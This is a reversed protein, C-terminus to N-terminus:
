GDPRSATGADHNDADPPCAIQNHLFGALTILDAFGYQNGAADELSARWLVGGNDEVQWLRLLFTLTTVTRYAM